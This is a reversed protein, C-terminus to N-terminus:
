STIDEAKYQLKEFADKSVTGQRGSSLQRARYTNDEEVLEFSHVSGDELTLEIRVDPNKFAPDEPDSKRDEISEFKLDEIPTWFKYVLPKQGRQAQPSEIIWADGDRSVAIEEDQRRILCRQLQSQKVHVVQKDRFEWLKQTLKEYVAQRVTFVPSREPDRAFYSEENRKGLELQRWTDAGEEQLRVSVPPNALGYRKLDQAEEAVFEVVKGYKLTSLLGSAASSDAREQLPQDLFWDAGEKRLQINGKPRSIEVLRVKDQDFNLLNKDRWDLLKKNASDFVSKATLHVEEDGEFQVYVKTKTYDEGGVKLSRKRGAAQVTLRLRPSDLGYQGPQQADKPLTRDRRAETLKRLLADVTFRDVGSEIPKKLLWEPGEKALAIVEQGPPEIELRSIDEQKFRFLSEQREKEAEREKGGEIEYLYVFLALALFVASLLGIKKM